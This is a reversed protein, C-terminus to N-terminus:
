TGPLTLTFTSGVGPTSRVTLEGGMGRALDRSIALGLGTGEHPANLRRDVQVFPAFIDEIREVAIGLGTDEVAITVVGREDARWHVMVAGGAATFKIANSLLNLLIQRLKEVDARVRVPKDREDCGADRIFRLGKARLQPAVLPELADVAECVRVDTIDYEVRGAELKAFNLVDNILGLLHRQNRQIRNIAERQQDTVPGHIGLEMLEAYGAIANLPTRLEHSMTTLFDTKARNAGEAAERATREAEVDTNTGFWRVVRGDPDKLPTIRTLFRRFRGDAGRLPFTMEVPEGTAIGARWHDLIWPLEAPDHVSQWGWGAMHEPTTGTYEYWRANYWDIYGDARATWALTPIANAFTRLQTESAAVADRGRVQETVDTAVVVIGTVTGAADRLPEYVFDFRRGEPEVGDRPELDVPLERAVFREGTAYVSDLLEYVGQGALEPFADRASRGVLEREGVLRRYSDNALVFRHTPGHLVAIAVPAQAFTGVLQMEAAAAARSAREAEETREELQAATAQLEEAQMELESAQDQLQQNSMELELAQEQLQAYAEELAKRAHIQDTM